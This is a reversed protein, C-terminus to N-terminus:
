TLPRIFGLFAKVLTVELERTNLSVEPYAGASVYHDHFREDFHPVEEAGPKLEFDASHRFPWFKIGPIRLLWRYLGEEFLARWPRNGTRGVTWSNGPAMDQELTERLTSAVESGELILGVETNLHASRPDLNYSGIWVSEDVLYTKAHICAHVERLEFSREFSLKLDGLIEDRNAALRKVLADYRPIM